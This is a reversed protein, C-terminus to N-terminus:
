YPKIVSMVWNEESFHSRLRDEAQQKTISACIDPYEFINIDKFLYSVFTNSIHQTDNFLRLFSGILVKKCRELERECLVANKLGTLIIERARDPNTSEGGIISHLYQEEGTFDAEFMDNILGENYLRSYIASGKGFLMELLLETIIQTELLKGGRKKNNADKFGLLFIPTAVSLQKEIVSKNIQIPEDPYLRKIEGSPRATIHRDVLHEVREPSVDGCAFLIMNSPNYFTNYCKYLIDANIQSISEATGAIDKRVPSHTYMGRLLNFFVQWSPDDDYMRIEQGIIGQEKAVNEETFYPKEVFDLLIELNDYFGATASFIYATLNFSTYANPSAGTRSYAEFVNSGDQQEFLKHELFHAVGDPVKTAQTDGPAIFESDISGIQAAFSAYSKCHGKKPLVYIRLGSKHTKLFLTEDLMESHIREFGSM